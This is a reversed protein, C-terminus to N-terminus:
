ASWPPMGQWRNATDRGRNAPDGGPQCIDFLLLEVMRAPDLGTTKLDYDAQFLREMAQTLEDLRFRSAASLVRFARFPHMGALGPHTGALDATAPQWVKAQFAPFPLDPQWRAALPGDLAERAPILGRVAGALINLLYLPEEGQGLLSHLAKLAREVNRDGLADTLDFIHAEARDGFAAEVDRLEVLARDGVYTFLKDLEEAFTRLSAGARELIAGEADSLLRKGAAAARARLERRLVDDPPRRGGQRVPVAFDLVGGGAELRKFLRRRQDAAPAILVLATGPALGKELEAELLDGVDSLKPIAMGQQLCHERVTPIWKVLDEGIGPLIKAPDSALREAWGPDAFAEQDVGAACLARLLLRAGREQDGGEWAQLASGLVDKASERSALFTAAFVAVVKRGGFLSRTRLSGLLEAPELAEGSFRELSTGQDAEPLLADILERAAQEALFEDGVCLYAPLPRGARIEELLHKLRAHADGPGAPARRGTGGSATGKGKAEAM